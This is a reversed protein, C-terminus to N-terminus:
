PVRQAAAVSEALSGTVPVDALLFAQGVHYVDPKGDWVASSPRNRADLEHRWSGREADVLHSRAWAWWDAALRAYRPEGTVRALVEAAAVAETAVWHFRRREVPRGSWDVTYVFGGEVPDWGDALARDFLRRAADLRADAAGAGVAAQAADLQVLLRSWEFGHGPTSGFPKFPDDPREANLDPLPRWTEDFHEVVRWEREAAWGVVRDAIASARELWRPDGTASHAALLAEVGHMNANAGRYPACTTWARDWEDRLMGQGADWFRQDLVRLADDLLERAGPRGAVTASSAALVVFAHAYASKTADVADGPGRSAFWGGDVPDALATRLGDLARDALLDTGPLGLLAGLAFMHAMRATIWTHVPRRPDPAGDDDLWRAGGDPGISAEAFALLRRLEGRRWAAGDGSRAPHDDTTM